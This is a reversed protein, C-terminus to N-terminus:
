KGPPRLYGYIRNISEGRENWEVIMTRTASAKDAPRGEDDTYYITSRVGGSPTPGDKSEETVM